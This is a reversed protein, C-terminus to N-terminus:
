KKLLVQDITKKLEAKSMAGMVMPPQENMPVFLLSPISRIGFVGALEQEKETNVKYIVIRDGYEAALEELIPAIMKCPGCWSAYFDILAPKDGLYKWESPNSEFDSVKTLFDAKTLENIKMTEKNERHESTTKGHNCAVIMVLVAFTLFLKNM